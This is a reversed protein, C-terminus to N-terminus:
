AAARAESFVVGHEIGWSYVFDLLDSMQAKTLKSSRFGVPFPQGNLGLEFQCAHGCAHMMLEKWVEATHMRGDPKARSIDSLASWLAANQELSRNAERITVVADAPAREVLSKALARQSQSRLIVTQAM